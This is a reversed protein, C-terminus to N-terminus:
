CVTSNLSALPQIIMKTLFLFIPHLSITIQWSHKLVNQSYAEYRRGETYRCVADNKKYEPSLQKLPLNNSKNKGSDM